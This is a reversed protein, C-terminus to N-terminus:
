FGCSNILEKKLQIKLEQKAIGADIDGKISVTYGVPWWINYNPWKMYMYLSDRKYDFEWSSDGWPAVVLKNETKDQFGTGVNDEKFRLGQKTGDTLVIYFDNNFFNKLSNYLGWLDKKTLDSAKLDKWGGDYLRLLIDSRKWDLTDWWERGFCYLGNYNITVGCWSDYGLKGNSFNYSQGNLIINFRNKSDIYSKYLKMSELRQEISDGGIKSEESTAGGSVLLGASNVLYNGELFIEKGNVIRDAKEGKRDGLDIKCWEDDYNVECTREKGLITCPITNGVPANDKKGFFGLVYNFTEKIRKTLPNLAGTSLGVIVLVIVAVLLILAVLKSVTWESAAKKELERLIM